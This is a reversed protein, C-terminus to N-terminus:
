RLQVWDMLMQRARRLVPLKGLGFWSSWGGFTTTAEIPSFWPDWVGGKSIHLPKEGCSLTPNYYLLTAFNIFVCILGKDDRWM